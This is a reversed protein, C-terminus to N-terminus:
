VFWLGSVKGSQDFVVKVTATGKEFACTVYAVDYGQEKAGRAATESKFAGLPALKGWAEQLKAPPMAASVAPSVWSGAEDFKGQALLSVFQKGKEAVDSTPTSSPKSGGCAALLCLSALLMSLVVLKRVM